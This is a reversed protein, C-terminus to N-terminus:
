QTKLGINIVQEGLTVGSLVEVNGNEDQIGLTVPTTTAVGGVLTEVYTGQDNQLIAYQPVILANQDQKTQIDVNATLGSKLAANPKDFSIKTLYTIVGNTNTEAPAVYFVTGEFTQGPFADLTMQAKDGLTVKGIDTESVGADVEFGGNGIISVLPSGPSSQQGIKADMQTLTGTIPAVIEANRLNAEASAVQAQAEQVQAEQAAIAQATSGAQTVALQAQAQAVTAQQTAINQSVDNLDSIATNVETLGVKVNAQDAALQSSSLGANSSLAVSVTNLLDQIVALHALDAKLTASGAEPTPSPSISKLEQQWANLEISASVRLNTSNVAAQSNSTTFTLQPQNTEANSFLANIQTRVADNASTYASTAQDGIGAYLNALNQQAM